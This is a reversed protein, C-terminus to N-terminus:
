LANGGGDGCGTWVEEGSNQSRDGEGHGKEILQIGGGSAAGAKEVDGIHGNKQASLVQAHHTIINM